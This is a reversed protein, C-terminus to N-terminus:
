QMILVWLSNDVIRIIDKEKWITNFINLNKLMDDIKNELKFGNQVALNHMTM